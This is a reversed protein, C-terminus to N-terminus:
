PQWRTQGIGSVQLVKTKGNIVMNLSSVSGPLVVRGSADFQISQTGTLGTQIRTIEASRVTTSGNRLVIQNGSVSLTLAQSRSAALTAGDRILGRFHEAQNQATLRQTAGLYGSVGIGMLISVVALTILMELLTFGAPTKLTHHM